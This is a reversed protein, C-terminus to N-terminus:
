LISFNRLRKSYPFVRIVFQFNNNRQMTIPVSLFIENIEFYLLFRNENSMSLYLIVRQYIFIISGSISIDWLLPFRIFRVREIPLSSISNRRLISHCAAPSFDCVYPKLAYLHSQRLCDFLGNYFWCQIVFPLQLRFALVKM